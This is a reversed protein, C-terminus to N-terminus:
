RWHPTSCKYCDVSYVRGIGVVKVNNSDVVMGNGYSASCYNNLVFFDNYKKKVSFTVVTKTGVSVDNLNVTLTHSDNNYFYQGESAVADNIKVSGTIFEVLDTNIVDTIVVNEYAMEAQNNVEITYTLNGDTWNTKNASKTLSLGDVLNVLSTNSTLSTAVSNYNGSALATNSLENM